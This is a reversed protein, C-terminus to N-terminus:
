ATRARSNKTQGGVETLKKETLTHRRQIEAAQEETFRITRGVKVCPWGHALRQELVWRPSTNWREALDAPTLFTSM